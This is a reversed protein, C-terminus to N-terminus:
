RRMRGRGAFGGRGMHGGYPRNVVQEGNLDCVGDGDEDVFEECKESGLGPGRGQWGPAAEPDARWGPMSEGDFREGYMDCAGDGDEDVFEGRPMDDDLGLGRGRWPMMGELREWWRGLWGQGLEEGCVDCQGDGDEDIPGQAWVAGAMLSVVLVVMGAIKFWRKM